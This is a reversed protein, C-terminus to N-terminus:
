SRRKAVLHASESCRRDRFLSRSHPGCRPSSSSPVTACTPGPSGSEADGVIVRMLGALRPAAQRGAFRHIRGRLEGRTTWGRQLARAAVAMAADDPLIRLCDFVTRGPGTVAMGDAKRIDDRALPDCLTRVDPVRCRGPRGVWLWRGAPGTPLDYWHAASPGAIVSGPVALHAAAALVPTTLQRGRFALVPRVGAALRGRDAAAPDPVCEVAQARTFLGLQRSAARALRRENM